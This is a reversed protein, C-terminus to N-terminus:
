ASEHPKIIKPLEKIADKIVARSESDIIALIIFYVCGGILTLAVTVTLRTPHPLVYLLLAMVAAAGIFKIIHNLPM